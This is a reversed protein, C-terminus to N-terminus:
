RARGDAARCWPGAASARAAVVRALVQHLRRLERGGGPRVAGAGRQVRHRRAGGSLEVPGLVAPQLVGARLFLACRPRPRLQQDADATRRQTALDAFTADGFLAERYYDVAMETRGYSSFWRLPNLLGRVLAGEVDRRLFREEFDDFVREGYLGYYASTFSGGSVSSILSVLTSCGCTRATSACARTACNWCCATPCRQPARAAAPFPWCWRWNAPRRNQQKRAFAQLSYGSGPM